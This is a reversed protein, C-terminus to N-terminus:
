FRLVSHSIAIEERLRTDDIEAYSVASAGLKRLLPQGREVLVPKGWGQVIPLYRSFNDGDIFDEADESLVSVAPGRLYIQVSVRKWSGVGAAIRIAEAPRSSTRPDTTILFLIARAM